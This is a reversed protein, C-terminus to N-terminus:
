ALATMWSLANGCFFLGLRVINQQKTPQRRDIGIYHISLWLLMGTTFGIFMKLWASDTAIILSDIAAQTMPALVPIAGLLTGLGFLFACVIWGKWPMFCYVLLSSIAVSELLKDVVFAAVSVGSLGRHYLFIGDLIAQFLMTIMSLIALPLRHRRLENMEDNAQVLIDATDEGEEVHLYDSVQKTDTDIILHPDNDRSSSRTDFTRLSKSLVVMLYYGAFPFVVLLSYNDATARPLGHFFFQGFLIASCFTLLLENRETITETENGKM